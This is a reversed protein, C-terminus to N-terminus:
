QVRGHVTSPSQGLSENHECLVQLRFHMVSASHRLPYAHRTTAEVAGTQSTGAV